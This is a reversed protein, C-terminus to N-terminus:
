ARWGPWTPPPCGCLEPIGPDYVTSLRNCVMRSYGRWSFGASVKDPNELCGFDRPTYGRAKIQDCIAASRKKWDLGPKQKEKSAEATSGDDGNISVKSNVSNGGTMNNVLDQLFGRYMTAQDDSVTAPTSKGADGKGTPSWEAALKADRMADAQHKAIDQEAKGKYHLGVDWSLNNLFTDAYNKFLRQSESANAADGTFYKPFLSNLINTLASQDLLDPIATNQNEIIPLFARIGEKTLPVDNLTRKGSEIDDVIDKVLDRIERLKNIRAM